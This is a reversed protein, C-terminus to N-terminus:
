DVIFIIALQLGLRWWSTSMQLFMFTGTKCRGCKFQIHTVVFCFLMINNYIINLLMREYAQIHICVAQKYKQCDHAADM